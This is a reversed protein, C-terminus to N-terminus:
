LVARKKERERKPNELYSKETYGRSDQFEGRYAPRLSLFGGAEAKQTSPNFTHSVAVCFLM